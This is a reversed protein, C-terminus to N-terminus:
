MEGVSTPADPRNADPGALPLRVTFESGRGLGDSRVQVTGGHMGVIDKVMSLGLGLGAKGRETSLEAQTFLDFIRPMIEPSIGIGTDEVKVVADSGEVSVKVWIKGGYETFKAANDILNVFVQKLRDADVDVMIQAQAIVVAFDHTRQDITPRCTEAAAAIVDNLPMLERKLQIKGTDLRTIDLLDEVLRQMFDLQRRITARAFVSDESQSGTLHLIQLSNVIAALPNRVEHALMSIFVNKRENAQKQDALNSELWELRSKLDTRNRLVKGFALLEGTPSWLPALIGTAWFRQGDKRIMWRDDEAHRDTRAVDMEFQPMRKELDEPPFLISSPQGIIEAASYGFVKEAGGHWGIIVGNPDLLMIAHEQDQDILLRLLKEAFTKTQESMATGWSFIARECKKAIRM